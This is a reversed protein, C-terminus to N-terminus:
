HGRKALEVRARLVVETVAAALRPDAAQPVDAVLEALRALPEPDNAEALLARQLVAMAKLLDHGRRRAARDQVSEDGAEQLALMGPLMAASVGGVGAPAAGGSASEPVSFGSSGTPRPDPLRMAGSVRVTPIRM